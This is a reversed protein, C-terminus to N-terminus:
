VLNTITQLIENGNTIMKSAAQFAKTAQIMDTFQETLDVNSAELMGQEISGFGGENTTTADAATRYVASGSNSSVQSYNGGVTTLGEPNNFAAMAVQGISMRGESTIATIVGNSSIDYSQVKNGNVSDPLALPQLKTSTYKADDSNKASTIVAKTSTVGNNTVDKWELKMSDEYYGMIRYGNTTVLNGQEDVVFNGDRTYYTEDPATTSSSGSSSSGTNIVIDTKGKAVVFYGEGDVALDTTRGTPLMNGQGMMKNISSLQAGLGVQKANIGGLTQSPASANSANQYLMDKFRAQSSKFATTSVNAINNAVVDLKTQNVKMGSIGSYMSRLM